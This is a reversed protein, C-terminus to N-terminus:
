AVLFTLYVRVVTHGLLERALTSATFYISSSAPWVCLDSSIQFVAGSRCEEQTEVPLGTSVIVIM